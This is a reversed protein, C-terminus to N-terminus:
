KHAGISWTLGFYPKIHQGIFIDASVSRGLSYSVGFLAEKNSNAATIIRWRSQKHEDTVLNLDLSSKKELVLKGNDFKSKENELLDFRYKEGGNVKVTVKPKEERIEVDADQKDAKPIYEVSTAAMAYGKIEALKDYKKDIAALRGNTDVSMRNLEGTLNDISGRLERRICSIEYAMFLEIVLVATVAAMYIKEKNVTM